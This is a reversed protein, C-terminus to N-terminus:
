VPPVPAARERAGRSAVSTPDPLRVTAEIPGGYDAGPSLSEDWADTVRRRAGCPPPQGDGRRVARGRRTLPRVEAEVVAVYCLDAAQQVTVGEDLLRRLGGTLCREADAVLRRRIAGLM